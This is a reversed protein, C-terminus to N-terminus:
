HTISSQRRDGFDAFVAMCDAASVSLQGLGMWTMPKHERFDTIQQERSAKLHFKGGHRGGKPGYFNPKAGLFQVVAGGVM